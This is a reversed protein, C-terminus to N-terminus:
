IYTYLYYVIFLGWSMTHIDGITRTESMMICWSVDHAPQLQKGEGQSGPMRLPLPRTAPPKRFFFITSGDKGGCRTFALFQEISAGTRKKGTLVHGKRPALLQALMIEYGFLHITVEWSISYFNFGHQNLLPLVTVFGVNPWGFLLHWPWVKGQGNVLWNYPECVADSYSTCPRSIM